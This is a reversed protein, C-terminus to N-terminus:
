YRTNGGRARRLAELRRPMSHILSQIEDQSIADWLERVATQLQHVNTPPSPLQRLRRKLMDWLNEIPNMDPYRAPWNMTTIGVDELYHRVIRAVHPRANDQMLVFNDGIFPAFPVVAEQLIEEIYRIATLSGNQVIILETRAQTNIGGWVMISQRQFPQSDRMTCSAYREGRRRWVRDRDDSQWLAFRCEDTFLVAGWQELTWHLYQNVFLRREVRHRQLLLPASAVRRSALNNEQLRRIVTRSSVRVGRVTQLECINIEIFALYLTFLFMIIYYINEFSM